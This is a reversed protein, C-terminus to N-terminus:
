LWLSQEFVGYALVAVAGVEGFFVGVGGFVVGVVV